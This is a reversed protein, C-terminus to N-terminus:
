EGGNLEGLMRYKLYVERANGAAIEWGVAGDLFGRRLIYGRVFRAAAHLPADWPKARRGQEHASAAWLRAYKQIRAARDARDRYTYHHLWGSLRGVKGDVVLREHVRGGEFRACSRRFLRVLRDPFWDGHWIWRGRYRAVRCVEYGAPPDAPPAEKWQAIRTRLGASLEEDADVSLVWEHAAQAIAFNKQGVFGEWPHEIVRAGAAEALSRTRDRSGSDVVVVEDAVGALSALCRPLNEQENLTIVCASIRM